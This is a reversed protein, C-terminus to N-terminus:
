VTAPKYIAETYLTFDGGVVNAYLFYTGDSPVSVTIGNYPYDGAKASIVCIEGDRSVGAVAGGVDVASLPTERSTDGLRQKCFANHIKAADLLLESVKYFQCVDFAFRDLGETNGDWKVYFGDDVANGGDGGGYQNRFYAMAVPDFIASLGM